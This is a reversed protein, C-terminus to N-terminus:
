GTGAAGGVAHPESSQRRMAPRARHTWARLAWEVPGYRFRRMWWRSAVVQSGFIILALFQTQAPSTHGALGLGIGTFLLVCLLSQSLYNTLAMGGAPAVIAAMRPRRAFLRLLTAGYATALLPATVISIMLGTMNARGGITFLAAGALGVARM